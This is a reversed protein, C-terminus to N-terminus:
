LYIVPHWKFHLDANKRKKLKLRTHRAVQARSKLQLLIFTEM